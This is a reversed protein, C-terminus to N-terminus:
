NKAYETLDTNYGSLEDIIDSVKDKEGAMLVKDVMEYGELIDIGKEKFRQKIQPNDWLLRKDADVTAAYIKRSRFVPLDVDGEIKPLQRGNPNNYRKVCLKRIAMLEDEGLPRVKFDFFKKGNRKIEIPQLNDEDEKYNAAELLGNIIEAENRLLQEQPPLGTAEVYVEEEVADVKNLEVVNEM